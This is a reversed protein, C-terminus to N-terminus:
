SSHGWKCVEHDRRFEHFNDKFVCENVTVDAFSSIIALPGNNLLSPYIVDYTMTNNLFQCRDFLTVSRSVAEGDELTRMRELRLHPDTLFRFYDDRM